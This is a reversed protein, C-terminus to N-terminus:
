GVMDGCGACDTCGMCGICGACGTAGVGVCSVGTGVAADAGATTYM